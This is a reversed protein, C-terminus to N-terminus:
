LDTPRFDKRSFQPGISIPSVIKSRTQAFSGEEKVQYFDLQTGYVQESFLYIPVLGRNMKAQISDLRIHNNGSELILVEGLVLNGGVEKYYDPLLLEGNLKTVPYFYRSSSRKDLVTYIRCMNKCVTVAPFDPAYSNLKTIWSEVVDKGLSGISTTQYTGNWKSGWRVVHRNKFQWLFTDFSLVGVLLIVGLKIWTRSESFENTIINWSFLLAPFLMMDYHPYFRYGLTSSYVSLFDFLVSLLILTFKIPRHFLLLYIKFILGVGIVSYYWRGLFLNLFSSLVSFLDLNNTKAYKFNFVFASEFLAELSSSGFVMVYTFSFFALFIFVSIFYLLGWKVPLLFVNKPTSSCSFYLRILFYPLFPIVYNAKNLFLGIALLILLFDHKLPRREELNHIGIKIFILALPLALVETLNGGEYTFFLFYLFFSIGLLRDKIISITKLLIFFLVCFELLFIGYSPHIFNGLANYFHIVPGKHDFFGQYPLSGKCIARGCYKYVESDASYQNFFPSEIFFFVLFLFVVTAAGLFFLFTLLYNNKSM